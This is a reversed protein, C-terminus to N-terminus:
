TTNPEAPHSSRWPRIPGSTTAAILAADHPLNSRPESGRIAASPVHRAPALEGTM